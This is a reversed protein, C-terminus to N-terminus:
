VSLSIESRSTWTALSEAQLRHVLGPDAKTWALPWVVDSLKFAQPRRRLQEIGLTKLEFLGHDFPKGPGKEIQIMEEGFGQRALKIARHHCYPNNGRKGFLVHSTANCGGRCRVKYECTGCEGWLHSAGEETDVNLNLTLAESNVIIDTLRRERINGGVYPKSALSPCGKINGNAEVGITYLGALCGSWEDVGEDTVRFNYPGYYGVNNGASMSFGDETNKSFLHGLLPFLELLDYPQLLNEVHDSANGMAYTIAVQWNYAGQEKILEYIMPLQPATVRNIQTNCGFPIGVLKLNNMTQLASEFADPRGRLQNHEERLGDLSISVRQIGADKMSQALRLNVRYGGSVMTCDMGLERIRAVIQLWDKRLFAEGGILTVEDIGAGHMQEVLDLAEATSLEDSRKEGARSGCMKCALNCRLTLEWVAYTHRRLLPKTM